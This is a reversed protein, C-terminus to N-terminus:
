LRQKYHGKLKGIKEERGSVSKHAMKWGGGEGGRREEDDAAICTAGSLVHCAARFRWVL